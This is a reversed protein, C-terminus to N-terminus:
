YLFGFLWLPIKNKFPYEVDNAAIYSNEIGAIQKNTKNKGGIEFLYKNDILFDSKPPYNVRHSLKLQNFFFTERLNGVNIQSETLAFMLNPNNLYVKEPKNMKVIGYSDTQLINLLDANDLLHFYKLLTDRSVGVQQSLKLINPKFPVLEAIISLLKRINYIATYDINEVSPIDNNIIENVTQELRIYYNKEDETFFPYYGIKLYEDFFKLPKIESNIKNCIEDANEIIQNLTLISFDFKYKLLLFERFSLGSMKYVIMRRSLDGKGHLINIASSGTLVIKLDPYNDYINKVEISWNPYKHVEDIFLYKGGYKVFEETFDSLNNKSFYLSDLSIYILEEIETSYNEKIYQLLFTTKGTGRAGTIAILRNNWDIKQWLYRKFTLDVNRLRNKFQQVIKEM